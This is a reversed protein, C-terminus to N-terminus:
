ATTDEDAAARRGDGEDEQEVVAEAAVALSRPM